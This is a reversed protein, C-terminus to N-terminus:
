PTVRGRPHAPGNCQRDRRRLMGLLGLGAFGVLVMAWTSPEPVTGGVFGDSYLRSIDVGSSALEDLIQRSPALGFPRSATSSSVLYYGPTIIKVLPDVVSWGAFDAGADIEITIVDGPAVVFDILNEEFATNGSGHHGANDSYSSSQVVLGGQKPDGHSEGGAHFTYGGSSTTVDVDWSASSFDSIQGDMRQSSLGDAVFDFAMNVPGTAPQGTIISYPEFSESALGAGSGGCCAGTPFNTLTAFGAAGLGGANIV